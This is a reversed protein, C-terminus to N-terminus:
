VRRWVAAAEVAAEAAAEAVAAVVMVVLTVWGRLLARQPDAPHRPREVLAGARPRRVCRRTTTLLVAACTLSAEENKGM